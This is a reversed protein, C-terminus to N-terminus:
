REAKAERRPKEGHCYVCMGAKTTGFYFLNPNDTGHPSHCSVCSFEKEKHKPDSGGFM